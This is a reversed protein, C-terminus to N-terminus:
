ARRPVDLSRLHAFGPSSRASPPMSPLMRDRAVPPRRAGLSCGPTPLGRGGHGRSPYPYRLYGAEGGELAAEEFLVDQDQSGVAEERMIVMVMAVWADLYAHACAGEVSGGEKEDGTVGDMSVVKSREFSLVVLAASSALRDWSGWWPVLRKRGAREMGDVGICWRDEEAEPYAGASGLEALVPKRRMDTESKKEIGCFTRPSLPTYAHTYPYRCFSQKTKEFGYVTLQALLLAPLRSSPPPFSSAPHVAGALYRSKDSFCISVVRAHVRTPIREGTRKSTRVDAHHTSTPAAASRLISPPHATDAVDSSLSAPM